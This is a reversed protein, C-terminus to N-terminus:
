VNPLPKNIPRWVTEKEPSAPSPVYVALTYPNVTLFDLPSVPHQPTETWLQTLNKCPM